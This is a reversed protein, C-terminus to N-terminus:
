WRNPSPTAAGTAPHSPSLSNLGTNAPTGAIRSAASHVDDSNLFSQSAESLLSTKLAFPRQRHRKDNGIVGPHKTQRQIGCLQQSLATPLHRLKALGADLRYESTM